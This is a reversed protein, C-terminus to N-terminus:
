EKCCCLCNEVRSIEKQSIEVAEKLQKLQLTQSKLTEKAIKHYKELAQKITPSYMEKDCQVKNGSEDVIIWVDIGSIVVEEHFSCTELDKYFCRYVKDGTKM